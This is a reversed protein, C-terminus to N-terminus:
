PTIAFTSVGIITFAGLVGASLGLLAPFTRDSRHAVALLLPFATLAFRPRSSLTPSLYSLAIVTVAFATLIAPPRWRVLLVFAIVVFVLSVAATLEQLDQGPDTLQHGVARLMALGGDFGQGWGDRQAKAWIFPDGTHRWLYAFFALVGLPSLAPAALSRWERRDRIALGAAVACALSLAVANPRTATAFAAAVGALLWWRRLLAYLCGISLMLMLAESYATTLVFSAPFFAFLAVSRDAFRASGLHRALLWLLGAAVTGFLLNAAVAAALPSLGTVASVARIVLPFLPFFAIESHPDQGAAPLATAYGDRAVILYWNGDWHSLARSFSWGDRVFGAIAVALFVVVRSCLFVAAARGVGAVIESRQEPQGANAPESM